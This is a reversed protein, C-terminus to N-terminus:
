HIGFLLLPAAFLVTPSTPEPLRNASEHSLPLDFGVLSSSLNSTVASTSRHPPTTSRTHWSTLPLSCLTPFSHVQQAVQHFSVIHCEFSRSFVSSLPLSQQSSSTMCRSRLLNSLRIFSNYISPLFTRAVNTNNQRRTSNHCLPLVKTIKLRDHLGPVCSFKWM